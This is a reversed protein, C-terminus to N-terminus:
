DAIVVHSSCLTIVACKDEM